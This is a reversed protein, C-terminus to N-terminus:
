RSLTLFNFLWTAFHKIGNAYFLMIAFNKEKNQISLYKPVDINILSQKVLRHKKPKKKIIIRKKKKKKKKMHVFINVTSAFHKSM